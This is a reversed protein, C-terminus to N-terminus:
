HVARLRTRLTDISGELTAVQDQLNRIREFHREIYQRIEATMVPKSNTRTEESTAHTARLARINDSDRQESELQTRADKLLKEETQLQEQLRSAATEERRQQALADISAPKVSPAPTVVAVPTNAAALSATPFSPIVTLPELEVKVGGKIPSNAYTVHGREDIHKYIVNATQTQAQATACFATVGFGIVITKVRRNM